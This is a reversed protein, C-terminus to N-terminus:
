MKELSVEAGKSEKEKKDDDYDELYKIYVMVAEKFNEYVVTQDITIGKIHYLEYSLLGFLVAWAEDDNGDTTKLIDKIRNYSKPHEDGFCGNITSVTNLILLAIQVGVKAILLEEGKLRTLFQEKYIDYANKDCWKEIEVSLEKNPRDDQSESSIETLHANKDLPCLGHSYEHLLFFLLAYSSVDNIIYNKEPSIFTQNTPKVNTDIVKPTIPEPIGMFDLEVKLSNLYDEVQKRRDELISMVDPHAGYNITGVEGSISALYTFYFLMYIYSLNWTVRIAGLSIAGDYLIWREDDSVGVDKGQSEYYKKAIELLSEFESM